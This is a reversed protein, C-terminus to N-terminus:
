ASSWLIIELFSQQFLSRKKKGEWLKCFRRFLICVRRFWGSSSCITGPVSKLAALLKGLLANPSITPEQLWRLPYCGRLTALDLNEPQMLCAQLKSILYYMPPYIQESITTAKFSSFNPPSCSDYSIQFFYSKTFDLCSTSFPAPFTINALYILSLAGTCCYRTPADISQTASFSLKKRGSFQYNHSDM